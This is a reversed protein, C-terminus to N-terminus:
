NSESNQPSLCLLLMFVIAFNSLYLIYPNLVLRSLDHSKSKTASVEQSVSVAFNESIISLIKALSIAPYQLSRHGATSQSLSIIIIIISLIYKKVHLCNMM